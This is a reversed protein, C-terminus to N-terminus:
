SSIPRTKVKSGGVGGAEIVSAALSALNDMGRATADGATAFAMARTMQAGVFTGRAQAAAPVGAAPSTPEGTPKRSFIDAAMEFKTGIPAQFLRIARATNRFAKEMFGAQEGAKRQAAYGEAFRNALSAVGSLAQDLILALGIAAALPGLLGAVATQIATFGSAIRLLGTYIMPSAVLAELATMTFVVAKLAGAVLLLSTGVAALAVGFVGVLALLPSLVKAVPRLIMLLINMGKLMPVLVMRLFWGAQVVLEKLNAILLSFQQNLTNSMAVFSIGVNTSSKQIISLKVLMKEMESMQRVNKNLGLRQAEANIEAQRVNIGFQDV